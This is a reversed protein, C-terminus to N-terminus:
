KKKFVAVAEEKQHYIRSSGSFMNFLSSGLVLDHPFFIVQVCVCFRAEYLEFFFFFFSHVCRFFHFSQWCWRLMRMSGMRGKLSSDDFGKDTTIKPMYKFDETEEYRQREDEEQERLESRRSIRSHCFFFHFSIFHFSQCAVFLDSDCRIVISKGEDMEKQIRKRQRRKGKKRM